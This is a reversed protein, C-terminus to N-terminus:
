FIRNCCEKWKETCNYDERNESEVPDNRKSEAFDNGFEKSVTKDYDVENQDYNVGLCIIGVIIKEMEGETKWICQGHLAKVKRKLRKYQKMVEKTNKRNKHANLPFSAEIVVQGALNKGDLSITKLSKEQMEVQGIAVELMGYLIEFLDVDSVKGFSIDHMKIELKIQKEECEREKNHLVADLMLNDCYDVRKLQRHLRKLEEAYHKLEEESYIKERELEEAAKLLRSIESQMNTIQDEQSRISRYHNELLQKQLYKQKNEKKLMVIVTGIALALYATGISGRWINLHVSTVALFATISELCMGIVTLIICVMKNNNILVQYNNFYKHFVYYCFFYPACEIFVRFVLLLFLKKEMVYYLGSRELLIMCVFRFTGSILSIIEFFPFFFYRELVNGEYFLPLIGFMLTLGWVARLEYALRESIIGTLVQPYRIVIINYINWLTYLIMPLFWSPIHKWVNKCGVTKKIFYGFPITLSLQALAEIWTIDTEFM